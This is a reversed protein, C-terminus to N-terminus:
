GKPYDIGIQYTFVWKLVGCPVTAGNITCKWDYLQPIYEASIRQQPYVGETNYKGRNVSVRIAPSTQIPVRM